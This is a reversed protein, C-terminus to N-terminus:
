EGVCAKMEKPTALALVPIPPQRESLTDTTLRQTVKGPGFDLIHTIQSKAALPKLAKHWYLPHVMLDKVMRMPLPESLDQYNQEDYFSYVPLVLEEKSLEFGIHEIERQMIPLIPAMLPSHFPCTTQLYVFKFEKDEIKHQYKKYFAILSSRHSSLIRNVPSNYLSVYIKSEVPLETNIEDVLAEISSHEGGLIAAMPSPVGGGLDKSQDIEEETAALYPYAKQASVGMYLQYKTFQALAAYYEDGGKAISTFAAAIIGQSHGSAGVALDTLNKQSLGSNLLLNELHALQTVQILALSVAAYNLYEESPITNPDNLWSSVDLGQPLGISGEVRHLEEEIASLVASFFPAFNPEGYYRALERFWLGGQGGFQLYFRAQGNKARQILPQESM